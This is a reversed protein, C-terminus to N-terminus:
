LKALPYLFYGGVGHPVYSLPITPPTKLLRDAIRQLDTKLARVIPGVYHQGNIKGEFHECPIQNEQCKKVFQNFDINNYVGADNDAM